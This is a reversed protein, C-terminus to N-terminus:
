RAVLSLLLPRGITFAFFCAIGYYFLKISRRVYETKRTVIKANDYTQDALQDIVQTPTIANMAKKFDELPLSAITGFFFPSIRGSHQGTRPTIACIVTVATTIFCGLCCLAMLDLIVFFPPAWVSFAGWKAHVDLYSGLQAVLYATLALVLTLIFKAKGDMVDVFKIVRELNEKNVDILYKTDEDM